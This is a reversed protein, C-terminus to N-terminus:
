TSRACSFLLIDRSKDVNNLPWSSSKSLILNAFKSQKVTLLSGFESLSSAFLIKKSRENASLLKRLNSWVSAFKRKTDVLFSVYLRVFHLLIYFLPVVIM